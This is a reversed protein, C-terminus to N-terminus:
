NQPKSPKRKLLRNVLGGTFSPSSWTLPDTLPLTRWLHEFQGTFVEVHDKSALTSFDGAIKRYKAEGWDYIHYKGGEWRCFSIYWSRMPQKVCFGHVVPLRDYLKIDLNIERGRSQIQPLEEELWERIEVLKKSSNKRWSDVERPLWAPEQDWAPSIMLVRLHMKRIEENNLVAEVIYKWSRDMDLGLWDMELYEIPYLNKADSKLSEVCETLLKLGQSLDEVLSQINREVGRRFTGIEETLKWTKKSLQDLDSAIGLIQRVVALAVLLAISHLTKEGWEPLTAAHLIEVIFFTVALLFALAPAGWKLVTREFYEFQRIFRREKPEQSIM